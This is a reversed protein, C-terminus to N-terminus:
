RPEPAPASGPSAPPATRQLVHQRASELLTFGRAYGAALADWGRSEAEQIYSGSTEMASEIRNRLGTAEVRESLWESAESALQKAEDKRPDPRPTTRHRDPKSLTVAGVRPCPRTTGHPLITQPTAAKPAAEGPFQPLLMKSADGMGTDKNVTETQRQGGIAYAHALTKAEEGYCIM